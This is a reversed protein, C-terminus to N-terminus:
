EEVKATIAMLITGRCGVRLAINPTEQSNAKKRLM